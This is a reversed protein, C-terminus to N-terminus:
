REKELRYNKEVYETIIGERVGSESFLVKKADVKDMLVILPLLGGVIIDARDSELGQIQRRSAVNGRLLNLYTRNVQEATLHYGHIADIRMMHQRRRNIRALTRNAGGLLVLPQHYSRSLWQIRSYLKRINFQANFLNAGSITDELHYRETLNVAGIPISTLNKSQGHSVRILECSAGGIDLILCNKVGLRNVVGLYDYYAEQTGSLVKLQIGIRKKVAALFEAQNKAQRVAATAIGIVKKADYKLYLRKFDALSKITREMAAEQLVKARGMGESLRSDSKVRKIERYSGDAAIQNIAMRVSNSGIDLIVLNEM